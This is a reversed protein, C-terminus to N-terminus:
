LDKVIGIAAGLITGCIAYRGVIKGEMMWYDKNVNKNFKEENNIDFINVLGAAISVEPSKVVGVGVGAATGVVAGAAAGKAGKKILDNFSTGGVISDLGEDDIKSCTNVFKSLIMKLSKFQENTLNIGNEQFFKKVEGDEKLSLFLRLNEKDEFITTLKESYNDALSIGKDEFFKKSEGKTKLSLLRKVEEESSFAEELIKVQNNNDM